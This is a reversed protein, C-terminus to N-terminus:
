HLYPKDNHILMNSNGMVVKGHPWLAKYPDASAQQKQRYDRELLVLTNNSTIGAALIPQDLLRAHLDSVRDLQQAADAPRTWIEYADSSAEGKGDCTVVAIELGLDKPLNSVSGIAAKAAAFYPVCEKAVFSRWRVRNDDRYISIQDVIPPAAAALEFAQDFNKNRPNDIWLERNHADKVRAHVGEYEVGRPLHDKAVKDIDDIVPKVEAFDTVEGGVEVRYKPKGSVKNTLNVDVPLRNNVAEKVQQEFAAHAATQKETLPEDQFLGIFYAFGGFLVAALIVFGMITTVLVGGCGAFILWGTNSKANKRQSPMPQSM